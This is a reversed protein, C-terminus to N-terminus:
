VLQTAKFTNVLLMAVTMPGVGGPVPTIAETKESLANFDVDGVLRYGKPHTSDILRNIGVDIVIAGEKIMSEKLFEPQGMAVILVDARRTVDALNQTASHCITTTANAGAAKQSLLISL